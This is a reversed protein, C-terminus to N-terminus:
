REKSATPQDPYSRLYSLMRRAIEKQYEKSFVIADIDFGGTTQTMDGRSLLERMGNFEAALHDAPNERFTSSSFADALLPYTLVSALLSPTDAKLWEEPLQCADLMEGHGNLKSWEETGPLIPYKYVSFQQKKTCGPLSLICAIILALFLVPVHRRVM